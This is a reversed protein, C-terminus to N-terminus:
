LPNLCVLSRRLFRTPMRAVVWWHWSLSRREFGLMPMERQTHAFSADLRRNRQHWQKENSDRNVIACAIIRKDNWYGVYSSICKIMTKNARKNELMYKGPIRNLSTVRNIFPYPYETLWPYKLVSSTTAPLQLSGAYSTVHTFPTEHTNM